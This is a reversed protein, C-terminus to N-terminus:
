RIEVGRDGAAVHGIISADIDSVEFSRLTADVDDEAVVAFPVLAAAEDTLRSSLVTLLVLNDIGLVIELSTLAVFAALAEGTFLGDM